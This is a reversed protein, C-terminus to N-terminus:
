LLESSQIPDGEAFRSPRLSRVDLPADDGCILDAAIRGLAPSHMVGHGSSGNVLFMNPCEAAFGVIPHKDPSMEYLGGYCITEDLEADRLAPVRERMMDNVSALWDQEVSTDFPDSGDCATPWCLLARGDRARVHFGDNLFITMPMSAPIADTPKTMAAQRRLPVVPLQVGALAAITAAWPGAANVVTEVEISGSRTRVAHVTDGRLEFGTCRADWHIDVDMEDCKTLYGRLMDLPRIYGDTPCFSGGAVGEVCVAPNLAAIEERSVERSDSLGATRQVAIGRRIGDLERDSSAIWLYGVPAYGPDVGTDEEFSLLADRSLLSLRVNIDTAFQARYGGTARGTSGEGPVKASDLVVIDRVGKRALHYAVSAGIVGGGIVVVSASRKV